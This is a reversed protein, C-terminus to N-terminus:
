TDLHSLDTKQWQQLGAFYHEVDESFLRKGIGEVLRPVGFKIGSLGISMIGMSMNAGRSFNFVAGLWPANGATKELFEFHPGLYPAKLLRNGADQPPPEFRDGWLAIHPLHETFEQALGMDTVYGTGLILHDALYPGDLTEVRVQEGEQAVGTWVNGPHLTLNSLRLAHALTAKPPGTRVQGAQRVFQWKVAPPLDAFHALYGNFEMWVAPNVPSLVPQRHFLHVDAGAEAAVIASDFASAGGGLVAVTKGNLAVFDIMEHTHSWFRKDLGDRVFDPVTRGGNGELGSAFVLTRAYVTREQDGTRLRVAILGGEAPAFGVAETDNEVPLGAVRKYWALYAHWQDRPMKYLNHWSGYGNLTEFWARFSLSPVGLEIGGVEKHTRMTPMRAYTSWPGEQGEPNEDVILIRDIRHSKLGFGAALGAQGGGVILTDLAPKGGPGLRELTWQKASYRTINLERRVMAELEELTNPVTVRGAEFDAEDLYDLDPLIIGPKPAHM